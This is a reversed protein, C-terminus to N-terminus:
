AFRDLRDVDILGLRLLFILIELNYSNKNTNTYTTKQLFYIIIKM